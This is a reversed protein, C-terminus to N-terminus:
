ILGADRLKVLYSHGTSKSSLGLASAMKAASTNGSKYAQYARLLDPDAAPLAISTQMQGQGPAPAPASQAVGGFGGGGYFNGVRDSYSNQYAPPTATKTSNPRPLLETLEGGRMDLRPALIIRAGAPSELLFRGPTRAAWLENVKETEIFGMSQAARPMVAGAM